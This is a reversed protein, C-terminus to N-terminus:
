IKSNSEEHKSSKIIKLSNEVKRHVSPATQSDDVGQSKSNDGEVAGSSEDCWSGTSVVDLVPEVRCLISCTISM